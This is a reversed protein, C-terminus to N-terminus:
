GIGKMNQKGRRCHHHMALNIVIWDSLAEEGRATSCVHRLITIYDSLQCDLLELDFLMPPMVDM